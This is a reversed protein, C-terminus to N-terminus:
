TAGQEGRRRCRGSARKLWALPSSGGQLFVFLGVWLILDGPSYARSSLILIDSLFWLRTQERLLVIGKSGGVLLGVESPYVRELHGIQTVVEPTIPMFGGNALMVALNLGLGLAILGMGGLHRNRWLVLLLLVSSASFILARLKAVGGAGLVIPFTLGAAPLGYVGYAQIALALLVLWGLAIRLSLLCRLGGHWLSVLLGVVVVALLM